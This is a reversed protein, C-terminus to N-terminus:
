PATRRRLFEAAGQEGDQPRQRRPSRRRDDEQEAAPPLGHHVPEDRRAEVRAFRDLREDREAGRGHEVPFKARAASRPPSTKQRRSATNWGSRAAASTTARSSAAVVGSPRRKAAARETSLIRESRCGSSASLTTAESRPM